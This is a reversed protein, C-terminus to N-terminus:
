SEMLVKLKKLGRHVKALVTGIPVSRMKAIEKFSLESYFRLMILEKTEADLKELQAQLKDIREDGTKAPQRTKLELDAKKADLLKNQRNKARLYDYFINSAVRFLWTEFYQGKFSNIKEVLKVFLESLLDNAIANNATLRYYYGYFRASYLTVLKEFSDPDGKKCGAIIDALDDTKAM